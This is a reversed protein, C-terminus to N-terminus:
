VNIMERLPCFEFDQLLQDLRNATRRLNVTHRFRRIAGTNVRPQGPDLEWPHLYVVTPRGNQNVRRMAWRTAAYPLLRFYGGGGVPLRRGALEIVTLPIEWLDSDLAYPTLPADSIGYDPHVGTPFVSSDYRLGSQKLLELAWLTSAVISFSPARFGVVNSAGARKLAELSRELDLRFEDPSLDVIRRHAYGHTGIEHGGDQIKKVVVPERDAIWGLIFFTAHVSHRKLLELIRNTNALVRLECEDWDDRSIFREHNYVQFWDEVDFSLGNKRM